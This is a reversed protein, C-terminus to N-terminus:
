SNNDSVLEYNDEFFQKAVYWSDNLNKPNIAIMGGVEPTDGIYVSINTLDEGEIYPRMLQEGVKRYSKFKSLDM